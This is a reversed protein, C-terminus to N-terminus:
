VGDPYIVSSEVTVTTPVPEIPEPGNNRVSTVRGNVVPPVLHPEPGADLLGRVDTETTTNPDLWATYVDPAVILPKREHIHGLSDFAATTIITPGGPHLFRAM